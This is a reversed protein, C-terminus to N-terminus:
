EEKAKWCVPKSSYLNMPHELCENCPDEYEPTDAFKCTNCYEHFYVEKYDIEPM